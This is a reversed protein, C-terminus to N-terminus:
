ECGAYVYEYEAQGNCVWGPATKVALTAASKKATTAAAGWGPNTPMYVFMAAKGSQGADPTAATFVARGNKLDSLDFGGPTNNAPQGLPSQSPVAAFATPAIGQDSLEGRLEYRQIVDSPDGPLSVTNHTPEGPPAIRSHTSTAALAQPAVAVACVVAILGVIRTSTNSLPM